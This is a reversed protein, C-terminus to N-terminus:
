FVEKQLYRCKEGDELKFTICEIFYYRFLAINKDYVEFWLPKFFVGDTM